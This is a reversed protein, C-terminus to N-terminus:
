RATSKLDVRMISHPLCAAVGQTLINKVAIKGSDKYKESTKDYVITEPAGGDQLVWAKTPAGSAIVYVYDADSFEPVAVPTITGQHVNPGLVASVNEAGAVNKVLEILTDRAFFKKAAILRGRPVLVHTPVLNMPRGNAAKWAMFREVIATVMADTFDTYSGQAILNSQTSLATDFVNVPHSAHFLNITSAVSGGRREARYFDLLPNSELMAATLVDPNRMAEIAMRSPAGAWGIFDPGELKSAKVTVGDVWEKPEFSMSREYLERLQDDGSREVYGPADVPVPITRRFKGPIVLGFQRSWQDAPAAVFAADFEQSFETIAVQADRTLNLQPTAM